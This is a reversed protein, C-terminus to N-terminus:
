VIFFIKAKSFVTQSRRLELILFILIKFYHQKNHLVQYCIKLLRRSAVSSQYVISMQIISRNRNCRQPIGSYVLLLCEIM